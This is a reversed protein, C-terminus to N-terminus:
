LHSENGTGKTKGVMELPAVPVGRIYSQSYVQGDRRVELELTSSLANVVSVGVGHLGGSIKYVTM